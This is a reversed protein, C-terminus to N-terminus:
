KLAATELVEALRRFARDAPHVDPVNSENMFVVISAGTEPQHFVAATFGIGEGNHGWWGGTEGIGLGYLDYPPGEELPAGQARADQTVPDLLAGTGLIEAWVRADDLTSFMSGAAAFISPNETQAKLVGEQAIYGVPHPQGWDEVQTLYRTGSQGLPDLIRDQLVREFSQGTVKEIVSGLLNTNANTYVRRTGPAFEAPQSLAFGNLEDLTFIRAPDDSFVAIFDDNTYDSNGSSMDALQRLTIRDGGTVGDVYQDVTDDLSLQRQDVLQLLLTVTYSKTISRLPWQMGTDAAVDNDVDALGAATTWSGHGPVWVGAVAGPVSFEAITTDLATQLANEVSDPLDGVPAEPRTVAVPAVTGTPEPGLAACGSLLLGVAALVVGGRLATRATVVPRNQHDRDDM